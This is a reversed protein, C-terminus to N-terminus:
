KDIEIWIQLEKQNEELSIKNNKLKKAQVKLNEKMKIRGMKKLKM